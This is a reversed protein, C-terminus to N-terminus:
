GPALASRRRLPAVCRRHRGAAALLVAADEAAMAGEFRRGLGRYRTVVALLPGGDGDVLARCWAAAATARAPEIEAAAEIECIELAQRAVEPRDADIALRVVTPLWQHRLMMQAYRVELVGTRPSSRPFGM